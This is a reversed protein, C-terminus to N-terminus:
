KKEKAEERWLHTPRDRRTRGVFFAFSFAARTYFSQQCLYVFGEEKQFLRRRVASDIGYFQRLLSFTRSIGPISQNVKDCFTLTSDIKLGNRNSENNLSWVVKLLSLAYNLKSLLVNLRSLSARLALVKKGKRWRRTFVAPSSVANEWSHCHRASSM